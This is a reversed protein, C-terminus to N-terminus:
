GLSAGRQWQLTVGTYLSSGGSGRSLPCNSTKPVLARSNRPFGGGGGVSGWSKAGYSNGWSWGGESSTEVIVAETGTWIDRENSSTLRNTALLQTYPPSLAVGQSKRKSVRVVEWANVKERQPKLCLSVAFPGVASVQVGEWKRDWSQVPLLFALSFAKCAVRIIKSSALKIHLVSRFYCFGCTLLFIWFWPHFSHPIWTHTGRTHVFLSPVLSNAAM